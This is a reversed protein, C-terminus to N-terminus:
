KLEVAIREVAQNLPNNETHTTTGEDLHPRVEGRDGKAQPTMYVVLYNRVHQHVVGNELPGFRVRVVRVRDNELALEYHKPDVKLPDLDTITVPPQPKGKLEIEIIQFAQDGTNESVYSGGAPAWRVDGAKFEVREVKGDATTRNMQGSDLCILVRDLPHDRLPAPQGPPLTTKVVRVHPNDQIVERHIQAPLAAAAFSAALILVSLAHMRKPEKLRRPKSPAGQYLTKENTDDGGQPRCGPV